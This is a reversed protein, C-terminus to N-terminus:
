ASALSTLRFPAWVCYSYPQQKNRFARTELAQTRFITSMPRRSTARSCKESESRGNVAFRQRGQYGANPSPRSTVFHLQRSSGRFANLPVWLVRGRAIDSLRRNARSPSTSLIASVILRCPGHVFGAGLAFFAGLGSFRRVIASGNATAATRNDDQGSRAQSFNQVGSPFLEIELASSYM